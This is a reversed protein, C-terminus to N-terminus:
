KAFVRQGGIWTELVQTKHIEEASAATLDQDLIIFDAKKGVELSGITQEQGLQYASGLTYGHLLQTLSLREDIPAIVRDKPAGPKRRTMGVEIGFLPSSEIFSVGSAPFDSGMSVQVGADFMSKFRMQTEARLKGVLKLWTNYSDNANQAWPPSIQAVVGAEKLRPFDAEKVYQLHTISHRTQGNPNEKRLRTLVNLTETTTRDGIAHIMVPINDIDIPKLLEYLEEESFLTSGYHAHGSHGIHKYPKSLAATAAEITGDNSIKIAYVEFRDSKYSQKLRAFENKAKPADKQGVIFHSAFYRLPLTGEKDMDILAQFAAESVIPIGADFLSTIGVSSLAPLFGHYAQKFNEKDGLGLKQLAPWFASAEVLWGTPNGDKDRKYYHVGPVPDPTDKTIGLFKLGASNVWASHADSAVLFVPRDKEALDLLQANPGNAGFASPSWGFGLLSIKNPNSIAYDKVAKILDAPKELGILQVGTGMLGAVGPHIHSSVFGPMVFQGQLDVMKTTQTKCPQMDAFAGIKAIEDKQVAMASALPQASNVTYIKGNTFIMDAQCTQTASANFSALSTAGIAVSSILISKLVHIMM